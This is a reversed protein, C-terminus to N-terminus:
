VSDAKYQYKVVAKIHQIYGCMHCGGGMFKINEASIGCM